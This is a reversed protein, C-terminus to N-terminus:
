IHKGCCCHGLLTLFSLLPFCPFNGSPL